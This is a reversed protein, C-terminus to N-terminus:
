KLNTQKFHFLLNSITAREAVGTTMGKFKFHTGLSSFAIKGGDFTAAAQADLLQTLTGSLYDTSAYHDWTGSQAVDIGQLQKENAPADGDLWSTEWTCIANDYVLNTAGGYVYFGEDTSAFVQGNYSVWKDPEFATQAGGGAQYTADWEAWATIKSNPFYSLVYIKNSLFIWYQGSVPEIVACANVVTTPYTSINEQIISDIPSGIDVLMANLSSDRVRLSRIGTRHLFFIDLEGLAKASNKAITGVNELVQTLQYSAPDADVQWIQINNEGFVAVKGQYAVLSQYSTSESYASTLEIFGNTLGDLDNFLVPNNIESFYWILSTLFNLKNKYTFLFTPVQGGVTGFGVTLTVGTSYNTLTILYTDDADWVNTVAIQNRQGTGAVTDTGNALAIATTDLSVPM